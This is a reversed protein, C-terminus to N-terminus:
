KIVNDFLKKNLTPLQVITFAHPLQMMFWLLIMLSNNSTRNESWNLSFYWSFVQTLASFIFSEPCNFTWWKENMTHISWWYSHVTLPVMVYEYMTHYHLFSLLLYMLPCFPRNEMVVIVLWKEESGKQMM